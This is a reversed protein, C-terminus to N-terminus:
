IKKLATQFEKQIDEANHVMYKVSRAHQTIDWDGQVKVELIQEQYVTRTDDTAPYKWKSDVKEQVRELHDAIYENDNVKEKIFAHYWQCKSKLLWM